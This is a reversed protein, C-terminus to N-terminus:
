WAYSNSIGVARVKGVKVAHHLAELVDFIPTNYDWTHFIYLDVYDMGLNRLSQDLSQAIAQLCSVGDAIQQATRPLFKTAVVMEDRRAMKRLARGVHCESSGNQYAIATDYFNIGQELGTRIIERCASEDLTWSHQGATVDGFGMCGMCIRSVTLESNGLQRHNNLGIWRSCGSRSVNIGTM